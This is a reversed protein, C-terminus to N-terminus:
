PDPPPSVQHQEAGDGEEKPPSRSGGRIWIAYSETISAMAFSEKMGDPLTSCKSRQAVAMAEPLLEGPSGREFPAPLLATIASAGALDTLHYLGPAPGDGCTVVLVPDPAGGPAPATEPMPAVLWGGVRTPTGAARSAFNAFVIEGALTDPERSPTTRYVLHTVGYERLQDFIM